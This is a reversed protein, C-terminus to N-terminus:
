FPKVVAFYVILAMLIAPAENAFRFFKESKHNKGIAFNRKWKICVGHFGFLFFLLALKTHFWGGMNSFGNINILLLGFILSLVMAPNIIIKVLKEEMTRFTLDMESNLKARTHYVFLRPLYLLGAMWSIVFVIHFAKIILYYQSFFNEM